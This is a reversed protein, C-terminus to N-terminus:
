ILAGGVACSSFVLSSVLRGSSLAKLDAGSVDNFLLCPFLLFYSLKEMGRWFEESTLWKRKILSGLVAILVIPFTESFINGM